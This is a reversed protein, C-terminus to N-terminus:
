NLLAVRVGIQRVRSQLNTILSSIDVDESVMIAFLRLGAKGVTGLCGNM